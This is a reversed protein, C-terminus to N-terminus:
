ARSKQEAAPPQGGGFVRKWFGQKKQRLERVIVRNQKKLLEMTEVIAAIEAPGQGPKTSREHTLLLMAKSQNEQEAKLSDRLHEIEAELQRRERERESKVMDRETTLGLVRERLVALEQRLDSPGGDPAPRESVDGSVEPELNNMSRILPYVRELEAVDIEKQNRSNLSFSITGQKTATNITERSKGTLWAAQRVSIKSM